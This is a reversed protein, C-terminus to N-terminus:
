QRDCLSEAKASTNDLIMEGKLRNASPAQCPQNGLTGM